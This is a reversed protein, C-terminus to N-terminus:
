VRDPRAETNSRSVKPRGELNSQSQQPIPKAYSRSDKSTSEDNYRLAALSRYLFHRLLASSVAFITRRQESDNGM